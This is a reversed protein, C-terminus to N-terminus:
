YKRNFKIVKPRYTEGYVTLLFRFKHIVLNYDLLRRTVLLTEALWLLQAEIMSLWSNLGPEFLAFVINWSGLVTERSGKQIDSGTRQRFSHGSYTTASFLLAMKPGAQQGNWFWLGSEGKVSIALETASTEQVWIWGHSGFDYNWRSKYTVKPHPPSCCLKPLLTFRLSPCPDSTAIKSPRYCANLTPSVFGSSQVCLIQLFEPSIRENLKTCQWFSQHRLWM